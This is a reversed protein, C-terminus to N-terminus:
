LVIVESKNFSVKMRLAVSESLVALM